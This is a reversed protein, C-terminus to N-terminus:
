TLGNDRLYINVLIKMLHCHTDIVNIATNNHLQLEIYVNRWLLHLIVKDNGSSDSEEGAM